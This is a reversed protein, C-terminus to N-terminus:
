KIEGGNLLILTDLDRVVLDLFREFIKCDLKISMKDRNKSVRDLVGVEESFNEFLEVSRGIFQEQMVEVIIEKIIDIFQVTAQSHEPNAFQDALTQLDVSTKSRTKNIQFLQALYSVEPTGMESGADDLLDTQETETRESPISEYKDFGHSEYGEPSNGMSHNSEFERSVDAVDAVDMPEKQIQENIKKGFFMSRESGNSVTSATETDSSMEDLAGGLTYVDKNGSHQGQFAYVSHAKLSDTEKLAAERDHAVVDDLITHGLVSSEALSNRFGEKLELNSRLLPLQALDIQIENLKDFNQFSGRARQKMKKVKDDHVFERIDFKEHSM